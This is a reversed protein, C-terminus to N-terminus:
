PEVLAPISAKKVPSASERTPVPTDTSTTRGPNTREFSVSPSGSAGSAVVGSATASAMTVPTRRPRWVTQTGPAIRQTILPNRCVGRATKRRRGM